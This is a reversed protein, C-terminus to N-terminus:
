MKSFFLHIPYLTGTFANEPQTWYRIQMELVSLRSVWEDARKKVIVAFGASNVTWCSKGEDFADPNFRICVIPRHGVDQSLQMIRKNECSCDYSGHQNEDIEVILVQYGLDLLLDPRRLSCGDAIRKDAIWTFDPFKEKIFDVVTTEKTKYNRYIRRDPYTHAYCWVCYGEYKKSIRTDCM